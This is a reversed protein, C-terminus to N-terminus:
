NKIVRFEELTYSLDSHNRSYTEFAKKCSDLTKLNKSGTINEVEKAMAGLTTYYETTGDEVWLYYKEPFYLGADDNTQYVHMGPEESQFYLRINPFREEIFRRVENPENWASEVSFSVTGDDHLMLNDWSGRCYVKNWDGGLKIVLNGLWTSGFGNEHLGPSAMSELESMISHLKQLQEKDGTAHYQTYAWNPM